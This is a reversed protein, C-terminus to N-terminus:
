SSYRAQGDASESNASVFLNGGVHSNASLLSLLDQLLTKLDLLKLQVLAVEAVGTRQDEEPSCRSIYAVEAEANLFVNIKAELVVGGGTDVAHVEVDHEAAGAEAHSAAALATGLDSDLM